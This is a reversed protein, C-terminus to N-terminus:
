GVILGHINHLSNTVYVIMHQTLLIGCKTTCLITESIIIFNIIILHLFNIIRVIRISILYSWVMCEETSATCSAKPFSEASQNIVSMMFIIFM